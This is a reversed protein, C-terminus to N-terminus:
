EWRHFQNYVADWQGFEEPLDRWSLGTRAGYWVAENFMCDSQRPPSGAKHQAKELM